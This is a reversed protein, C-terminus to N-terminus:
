NCRKWKFHYVLGASIDASDVMSLAEAGRSKVLMSTNVRLNVDAGCRSWVMSRATLTNGLTFDDDLEGRFTKTFKPGRVGAFFYEVSFRSFARRPLSNYGRYDIDMVAVSFGQPIHVPVAINCSKRVTRRRRTTEVIYDDFLISLSKADPSLTVSATGAPCGNGGYGPQGLSIDDAQANMGLSLAGLLSLVKLLKKM